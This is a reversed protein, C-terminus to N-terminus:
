NISGSGSISSSGGFLHRIINTIYEAAGIAPTAPPTPRNVGFLDTNPAGAYVLGAGILPSLSSPVINYNDLDSEASITLAPQGTFSPNTTCTEGVGLTPCAGARLNYYSNHDRVSWGSLPPMNAAPDPNNLYFLAPLVGGGTTWLPDSYGLVVNNQFIATADKCWDGGDCGLDFPSSNYGVYTNSQFKYTGIDTMAMPIGDAGARCPTVGPVIASSPMDGIVYLIRNCNVEAFNNYMTVTDASGIKFAQGDNAMSKSNTVTLSQMGSHLLDLGDQMNWFWTDHDFYWDGTTAATGFGDPAIGGGAESDRCEIYPYNHVIPYEEACGTFETVSNTMRFGGAVSMNNSNWTADDMDIAGGAAPLGRLTLYDAVVGKGTAGLIGVNALGHIFLDTYNVNSTLASEVIGDSGASDAGTCAHTFNSNGACAARDSVEFCAIDVFQSDKTNFVALNGFTGDLLTKASNSHCSAYNEGLIRTHRTSTGSPISPMYCEYGNGICNVPTAYPTGVNAYGGTDYGGTKQRVIVTDGGQIMWQHQLYTAEDSWLYRINGVACDKQKPYAAGQTWVVTGDTTTPSAWSPGYTATGSTGATKVTEYYGGNQIITHGALYATNPMWEESTTGPYDADTLGTCQGNTSTATYPTGGGPRVYWTQNSTGGAVINLAVTNGPTVWGAISSTTSFVADGARGCTITVPGAAVATVFGYHDVTAKTNDSSSWNCIKSLPQGRGSGPQNILLASGITVTSGIVVDLSPAPPSVEWSFKYNNLDPTPYQYWTDGVHQGFIAAVAKFAGASAVVQSYEYAGAGPDAVQTVVGSGSVTVDSTRAVSWTAGGAATCDDTSSDDYTCTPTITITSGTKIAVGYPAVSIGTLTKAFLTSPTLLFLTALIINKM